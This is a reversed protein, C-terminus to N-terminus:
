SGRKPRVPESVLHASCGIGTIMPLAAVIFEPGTRRFGTPFCSQPRAAESGAGPLGDRLSRKTAM